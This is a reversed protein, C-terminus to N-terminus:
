QCARKGSVIFTTSKSTKKYGLLSKFKAQFSTLELVFIEGKILIFSEKKGLQFDLFFIFHFGLFILKEVVM